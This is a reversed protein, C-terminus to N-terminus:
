YRTMKGFGMSLHHTWEKIFVMDRERIKIGTEKISVVMSIPLKDLDMNKIMNGIEMTGLAM